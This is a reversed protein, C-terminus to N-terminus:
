IFFQLIEGLFFKKKMNKIFKYMRLIELTIFYFFFIKTVKRKAIIVRSTNNKNTHPTM